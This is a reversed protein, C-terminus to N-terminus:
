PPAAMCFGDGRWVLHLLRRWRRLSAKRRHVDGLLRNFTLIGGRGPAEPFAGMCGASRATCCATVHPATRCAAGWINGSRRACLRSEICRVGSYRRAFYVHRQGRGGSLHRGYPMWQGRAAGQARRGARCRARFREMMEKGTVGPMGLYNDVLEAKGFAARRWSLM